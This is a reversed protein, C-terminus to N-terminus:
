LPAHRLQAWVWGRRAGHAAELQEVKARAEALPLDQFQQLENRLASEQQENDQPWTDSLDFLGKVKPRASRLLEPLHPYLEPSEAFRQWVDAWGPGRQGLREAGGLAGDAEPDFGYQKKCVGRFLKWRGKDWQERTAAPANLWRLLSRVPDSDVVAE